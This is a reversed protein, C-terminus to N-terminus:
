MKKILIKPRHTNPAILKTSVRNVSQKLFLVHSGAVLIKSSLNNSFKLCRVLECDPEPYSSKKNTMNIIKNKNILKIYKM